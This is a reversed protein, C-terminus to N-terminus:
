NKVEAEETKILGSVKYIDLIVYIFDTMSNGDDLYEDFIEYAKDLNIGHQYAQLSCFLIAVMDGIKPIENEDGFISLPNGGLMKELSILNRTNLRLKYEKNGATFNTYLM